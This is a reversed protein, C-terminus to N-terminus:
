TNNKLELQYIQTDYGRLEEDARSLGLMELEKFLEERVKEPNADDPCLKELEVYTGLKEVDDLCIEYIGLKGKRRIKRVEIMPVWGLTELIKSTEEADDIETEYELNDGENSRQQKLNLQIKDKMRRIRMIIDGEKAQSFENASGKLAYIVDHQSIPKSLERGKEGLKRELETFNGAKLKIEIERM